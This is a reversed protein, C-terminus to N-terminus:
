FGWYSHSNSSFSAFSASKDSPYVAADCIYGVHRNSFNDQGIRVNGAFAATGPINTTGFGVNTGDVNLISSASNGNALGGVTHFAADASGAVDIGAGGGAYLQAHNAGSSPGVSAGSSQDGIM